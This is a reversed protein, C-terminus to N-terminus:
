AVGRPSPGDTILRHALSTKSAIRKSASISGADLAAAEPPPTTVLAHLVEEDAIRHKRASDLVAPDM